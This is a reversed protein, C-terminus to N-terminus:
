LAPMHNGDPVVAKILFVSWDLSDAPDAWFVKVSLNICTNLNEEREGM